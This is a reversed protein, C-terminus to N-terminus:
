PSHDTTLLIRAFSWHMSFPVLGRKRRERTKWVGALGGPVYKVRENVSRPNLVIWVLRNVMGYTAPVLSNRLSAAFHM